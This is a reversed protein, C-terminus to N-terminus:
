GFFNANRYRFRYKQGRVLTRGVGVVYREAVQFRRQGPLLHELVDAKRGVHLGVRAAAPLTHVLYPVGFIQPFLVALRSLQYHHQLFFDLEVVIEAAVTDALLVDENHGVLRAIREVFAVGRFHVGLAFSALLEQFDNM